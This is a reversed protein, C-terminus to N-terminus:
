LNIGGTTSATCFINVIGRDLWPAFSQRCVPVLLAQVADHVGEESSHWEQNYRVEMGVVVHQLAYFYPLVMVSHLEETDPVLEERPPVLMDEDLRDAQGLEIGIDVTIRELNHSRITSFAARLTAVLELWDGGLESPDICVTLRLHRLAANTDFDYGRAAFQGTCHCM